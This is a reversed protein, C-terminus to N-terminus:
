ILAVCNDALASYQKLERVLVKRFTPYLMVEAFTDTTNGLHSSENNYFEPDDSHKELIKYVHTFDRDRYIDINNMHVYRLTIYEFIRTFPLRDTIDGTDPTSDHIIVRSIMGNKLYQDYYVRLRPGNPPQTCTHVDQKDGVTYYFMIDNDEPSYVYDFTIVNEFLSESNIIADVADPINTVFRFCFENMSLSRMQQMHLSKREKDNLMRVISTVANVDTDRVYVDVKYAHKRIMLKQLERVCNVNATDMFAICLSRFGSTIVYFLGSDDSIDTLEYKLKMLDQASRPLIDVPIITILDEPLPGTYLIVVLDVRSVACEPTISLINM